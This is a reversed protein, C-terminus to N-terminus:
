KSFLTVFNPNKMNYKMSEKALKRRQEDSVRISGVTSKGEHWFSLLGVLMTSVGWSSSWSEPHYSSFSTCIKAGSKFRGNPTVLRIEPPQFPYEEPFDIKGMYVGGEYPSDKLDYLIFYWIRLNKPDPHALISDVPEKQLRLYESILRKKFM